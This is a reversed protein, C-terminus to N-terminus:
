LLRAEKAQAFISVRATKVRDALLSVQQFLQFTNDKCSIHFVHLRLWAFKCSEFLSLAM